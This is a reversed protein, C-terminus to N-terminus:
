RNGPSAIADAVHASPPAWLVLRILLGPRASTQPDIAVPLSAAVTSDPGRDELPVEGLMHGLGPLGAIRATRATPRPRAARDPVDQRRLLQVVQRNRILNRRRFAQLRQGAHANTVRQDGVLVTLLPSSALVPERAADRRILSRAAGRCDRRGTLTFRDALGTLEIPTRQRQCRRDASRDSPTDSSLNSVPQLSRM